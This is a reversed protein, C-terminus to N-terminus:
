SITRTGLSAPMNKDVGHSGSALQGGARGAGAGAPREKVSCVKELAPNMVLLSQDQGFMVSPRGGGAQQGKLEQMAQSVLLRMAVEPNPQRKLGQVLVANEQIEQMCARMRETMNGGGPLTTVRSMLATIRMNVSGGAAGLMGTHELANVGERATYAVKVPVSRLLNEDM